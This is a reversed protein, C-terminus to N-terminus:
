EKYLFRHCNECETVEGHAIKEKGAISLEMGCKSCRDGAVACIIPFIRESRKNEYRKFVEPHIDASLKKLEAKITEMEALKTKKYEQYAAAYETYQKQVAITKKKLAKYEEDADKITKSLANIETKLSKLKEQLQTANKKYFSIDAGEEVLDDLNEFDKLTEAIDEYKKNIKQLDVELERAKADMADLKEPAKTLFSKSQSYNKWEDSNAADREIKLLKSDEEQYKLLQEIQTM